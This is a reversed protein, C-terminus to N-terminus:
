RKPYIIEVNSEGCIPCRNHEKLGSHISDYDQVLCNQCHLYERQKLASQKTEMETKLIPKVPNNGMIFDPLIFLSTKMKLFGDEVVTELYEYDDYLFLVYRRERERKWKEDKVSLIWYQLIAELFTHKESDSLKFLDIIKFLYNLEGKAEETDYLVDFALVQSVFPYRVKIPLKTNSDKRKVYTNMGLPGILDIIRDNKYGYLCEGYKAQMGDEMVVKSFSSVFYTRVPSFDINKAWSYKIWDSKEFLEPIVRQEREDNLLEIKRMWIEHNSVSERAVDIPVYKCIYDENYGHRSKLIFNSIQMIMIGKTPRKILSLGSKELLKAELNFLDFLEERSFEWLREKANGRMNSIDNLMAIYASTISSIQDESDCTKIEQEVVDIIQKSFSLQKELTYKQYAFHYLKLPLLLDKEYSKIRYRDDIEEEIVSNTWSMIKQLRTAETILDYMYVKVSNIHLIEGWLYIRNILDTEHDTVRMLGFSAIENADNACVVSLLVERTRYSPKKKFEEIKEMILDLQQERGNQPWGVPIDLKQMSM